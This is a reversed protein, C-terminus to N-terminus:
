GALQDNKNQEFIRQIEQESVNFRNSLQYVAEEGLVRFHCVIYFAIEKSRRIQQLRSM